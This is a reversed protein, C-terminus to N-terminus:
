APIKLLRKATGSFVKDKIEPTKAFALLANMNRSLTSEAPMDSAFVMHDGGFFAYGCELAAVNGSIATDTYFSKFYEEPKKKLEPTPRNCLRGAFFPIMAGCHHTVFKIGPHKDFAGSFVLRAMALSSDYPWGIASFLDYKSGSEGAYDPVSRERTPHIWIPWDYQTMLSYLDDLEPADLPKEDMPTFLQIGKFKLQTIAREAEKLAAVMDNLPLIAIAGAFRRPYKAVIEAMEDNAIKALSVADAPGVVGELAPQIVSLVQTVGPYKDMLRFRAELDVLGPFKANLEFHVTNAAKKQLAAQYKPPMIHVYMDIIENIKDTM